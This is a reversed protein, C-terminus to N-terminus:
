ADPLDGVIFNLAGKAARFVVPTSTGLEGDLNLMTEERTQVEVREAKFYDFRPSSLHEGKIFRPLLMLFAPISMAKMVSIDLIGDLASAQPAVKMGGAFYIGNCADMMLARYPRAEGEVTITMEVPHLHALAQLIGLMYPLMGNFRKKYKETYLVVDVDFGFGAVNVFFSDNAYAGDVKRVEHRLLHGVASEVDKNLGVARAFDNGTGFPLLGMVADTGALVSAVEQTTGDGGVAVICTEGACLARRALEPAHGKRATLAYDYDVGRHDLIKRAESFLKEGRGSGSIPNVIFYYRM